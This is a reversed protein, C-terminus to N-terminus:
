FTPIGQSFSKNSKKDEESNLTSQLYEWGTFYYYGLGSIEM